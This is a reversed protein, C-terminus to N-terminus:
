IYLWCRVRHIFNSKTNKVPFQKYKKFYTSNGNPTCSDLRSKSSFSGNWGLFYHYREYFVSFIFFYNLSLQPYWAITLNYIIGDDFWLNKFKVKKKFTYDELHQKVNKQAFINVRNSPKTCNWMNQIKTWQAKRRGYNWSTSM